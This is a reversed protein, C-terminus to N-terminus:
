ISRLTATVIGEQMRSLLTGISIITIVPSGTSHIPHRNVAMDSIVGCDKSSSITAEIKRRIIISAMNFDAPTRPTFGLNKITIKLLLELAKYEDM